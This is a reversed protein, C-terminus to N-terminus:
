PTVVTGFRCQVKSGSPPVEETCEDGFCNRYHIQHDHWHTDNAITRTRYVPWDIEVPPLVVRDDVDIVEILDADKGDSYRPADGICKIAAVADRRRSYNETTWVIRGNAARFRAHWPQSADTRVIEFRPQGTM